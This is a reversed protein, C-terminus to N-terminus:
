YVKQQHIYKQVEPHVLDSNLGKQFDDRIQTSSADVPTHEVFICRNRIEDPVKEIEYNPRKAVLLMWDELIQEFHFWTNFSNLNDSGICWLFTINPHVNQLHKLTQITYGPEPLGREVANIIVNNAGKFAISLMEFRHEFSSIQQLSKHPPKSSPIVWLETILGSSLFSDVIAKHGNHVPDFTGGLLGVVYKM